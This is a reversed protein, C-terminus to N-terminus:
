ALSSFVNQVDDHDDLASLLNLVKEATEEDAEIKTTAVWEQGSETVTLGLDEIAKKVEHLSKPDTYISIFGEDIQIDKIDFDILAELIDDESKNGTAHIVGLKEFMWSVSGSEGMNGGNKSFIKRLESVTRNRNDTLTEVMVAVGGPGYGEYTCAEYQVGPLEGTGKKIARTANELPMNIEKAKDLLLRLRANLEPNGGGDRAAVTIEKILRGFSKGKKADTAAKKHKIKSWKNHGAM